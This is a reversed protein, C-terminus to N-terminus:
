PVLCFTCPAYEFAVVDWSLVGSVVELCIFVFEIGAFNDCELWQLICVGSFCALVSFILLLLRWLLQHWAWFIEVFIFGSSCLFLSKQGWSIFRAWSPAKDSSSLSALSDRISPGDMARSIQWRSVIQSLLNEWSFDKTGLGESM